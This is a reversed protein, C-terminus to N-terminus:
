SNCLLCPCSHNCHECGEESGDCADCWRESPYGHCMQVDGTCEDPEDGSSTVYKGSTPDAGDPILDYAAGCRLCRSSEDGDCIFHHGYSSWVSSVPRDVYALLAALDVADPNQRIDERIEDLLDSRIVGASAFSYLASWQGGHWWGAVVRATQEEIVYCRDDADWEAVEAEAVRDINAIHDNYGDPTM